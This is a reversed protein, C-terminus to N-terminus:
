VAADTGAESKFVGQLDGILRLSRSRALEFPALYIENGMVLYGRQSSEAEYLANRLDSTAARQARAGLVNDFSVQTREGLWLTVGVLGLLALLGIILFAITSSAVTRSSIPMAPM